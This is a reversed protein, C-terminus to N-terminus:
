LDNLFMELNVYLYKVQARSVPYYPQEHDGNVPTVQIEPGSRGPRITIIAVNDYQSSSASVSTSEPQVPPSAFSELEPDDIPLDAPEPEDDPVPEPEDEEWPLPDPVEPEHEPEDPVDPPLDPIDFFSPEAHTPLHEESMRYMTYAKGKEDKMRKPIINWNFNRRLRSVVSALGKCKYRIRAEKDNISRGSRLHKLITNDMAQSPPPMFPAAPTRATPSSQGNMHDTATTDTM